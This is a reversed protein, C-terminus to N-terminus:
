EKVEESKHIIDVTRKESLIVFCGNGNYKVRTYVFWEDSIPSKSLFGKKSTLIDGEQIKMLVEDWHEKKGKEVENRIQQPTKM